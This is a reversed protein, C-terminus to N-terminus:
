RAAAIGNGWSHLRQWFQERTTAMNHM